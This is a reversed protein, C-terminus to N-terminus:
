KEFSVNLPRERMDQAIYEHLLVGPYLEAAVWNPPTVPHVHLINNNMYNMLFADVEPYVNTAIDNSVQSSLEARICEQEKKVADAVMSALEAKANEREGECGKECALSSKRAHKLLKRAEMSQSGPDIRTDPDEQSLMMEDAFKDAGSDESKDLAYSVQTAEGLNAVDIQEATPILTEPDPQKRKLIRIIISKKLASSESSQKEQPNPSRPASLTKNTGRGKTKGSNFISLVVEHNAVYHHLENVRTHGSIDLFEIMVSLEPPEVFDANNHGTAQPLKLMTRLKDLSFTVEEEDVMFKFVEKSDAMAPPCSPNILDIKKNASALEHQRNVPVLQDVTQLQRPQSM